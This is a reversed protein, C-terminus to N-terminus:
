YTMLSHMSAPSSSSPNRLSSLSKTVPFSLGRPSTVCNFPSSLGLTLNHASSLRLDEDLQAPILIRLIRVPRQQLLVLIVQLVVSSEQPRLAVVNTLLSVM